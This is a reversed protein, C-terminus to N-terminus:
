IPSTLIQVIEVLTMAVSAESRRIVLIHASRSSDPRYEWRRPRWSLPQADEHRVFLYAGTDSRGQTGIDLSPSRGRREM